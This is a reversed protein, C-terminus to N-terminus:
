YGRRIVVELVVKISFELKNRGLNCNIISYNNFMANEIDYALERLQKKSNMGEYKNNIVHGGKSEQILKTLASKHEVGGPEVSTESKDTMGGVIMIIVKSSLGQNKLYPILLKARLRM